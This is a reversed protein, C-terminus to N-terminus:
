FGSWDEGSSCERERENTWEWYEKVEQKAKALDFDNRELIEIYDKYSHTEYVWHGGAEYNDAAYRELSTVLPRFSELSM